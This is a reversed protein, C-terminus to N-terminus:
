KKFALKLLSIGETNSNTLIITEIEKKELLDNKNKQLKKHYEANLVSDELQHQQDKRLYESSNSKLPFSLNLILLIFIIYFLFPLATSWRLYRWNKLEKILNKLM